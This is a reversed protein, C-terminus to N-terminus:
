EESRFPSAPLNEGNFLNCDPVDKWAYRVRRPESVSSASVVVTAGEIRAQAEVFKGDAGAVEFGLVVEGQTKLGGTTHDFWVRMSNGEVTAQRFLPGSYEIKEGYSIAEAALALRLGVDQKNLPHINTAEGIDITVAMGTNALSLTRRQADRVEPWMADPGTKFDAIQVFLFPFDGQGWARRWDQIMTQFLHAYLPAREPGANSEGQYWIAGRIPFRTLPAIMANFLGAPQWCNDQNPHWPHGPAPKGERKATAVAQEWEQLQKARELLTTSQDQMLKGWEAFVPMLSADAGLSTMSTWAEAPTGGWNSEILGVPVGYKQHLQRGFFYAAASFEDIMEPTTAVWTHAAIDELPHDAVRTLARFLRIQPYNAAAIEAKANAVGHMGMEMNSQGSAVWVDGVLVDTLTITNSAKVSLEFPGGAAGASLYLSWRGFEDPNASRTEGRFTVNVAEGPAATGWVHVPLDRQVVMHEAILAPLKVEALAPLALLLASVAFRLTRNSIFMIPSVSIM